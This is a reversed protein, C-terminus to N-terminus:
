ILCHCGCPNGSAVRAAAAHGDCRWDLDSAPAHVCSTCSLAYATLVLSTFAAAAFTWAAAISLRRM